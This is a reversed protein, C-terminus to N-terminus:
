MNEWLGYLFGSVLVPSILLLMFGWANLGKFVRNFLKEVRGQTRPLTGHIKGTDINRMKNEKFTIMFMILVLGAVTPVIM